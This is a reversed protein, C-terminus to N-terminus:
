PAMWEIEISYDVSGAPGSWPLVLLYYTQGPELAFGFNASTNFVEPNTDSVLWGAAIGNGDADHLNIDINYNADAWSAIVNASLEEPVTIAYADVETADWGPDDNEYTLSGSIADTFGLGSAIPLQQAQDFGGTIVPNDYGGWDVNNPEQEAVKWGYVKPSIDDVMLPDPVEVVGDDPIGVYVPSSSYFTGSPLTGNLSAFAGGALYVASISENVVTIEEPEAADGAGGGTNGGGSSGTDDGGGGTDQGGTDGGGGTDQGGTDGGGTDQGGTDGPTMRRATTGSDDVTTPTTNTEAETVCGADGAECQTVSRIFWIDYTGTWTKAEDDWEFHEITSGGVPNGHNVPDNTLYAGVLLRGTNPDFGSIGLTYEGTATGDTYVPTVRLAYTSGPSFTDADLTIEVHGGTGESSAEAVKYYPDADGTDIDAASMDFLELTYVTSDAYSPAGTDPVGGTDGSTTADFDMTITFTGDEALQAGPTPSLVYIDVDVDADPDSADPFGRTKGSVSMYRYTITPLETLAADWTDNNEGRLTDKGEEATGPTLIATGRIEARNIGQEPQHCASAVGGLALLLFRTSYPNRPM